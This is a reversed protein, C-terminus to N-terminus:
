TQEAVVRELMKMLLITEELTQLANPYKEPSEWFEKFTVDPMKQKRAWGIRKEFFELNM